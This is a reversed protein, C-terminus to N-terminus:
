KGRKNIVKQKAEDSLRDWDGSGEAPLWSPYSKDAPDKVPAADSPASADEGSVADVGLKKLRSEIANAQTRATWIETHQKSGKPYGGKPESGELRAIEANLVSLAKSMKDVADSEQQRARVYAAHEKELSRGTEPDEMIGKSVLYNVKAERQKAAAVGKEEPSLEPKAEKREPAFKQRYSEAAGPFRSAIFQDVDALKANPNSLAEGMATLAAGKLPPIVGAKEYASLKMRLENVNSTLRERTAVEEKRKAEAQSAEGREKESLRQAAAHAAAADGSLRDIQASLEDYRKGNAHRRQEMALDLAAKAMAAERAKAVSAPETSVPSTEAGPLATIPLSSGRGVPSTAPVSISPGGGKPTSGSEVSTDPRGPKGITPSSPYGQERNRKIWDRGRPTDMGGHAVIDNYEDNMPTPHDPRAPEATETTPVLLARASPSRAVIAQVGQTYSAYRKQADEMAVTDGAMRAEELDRAAKEQGTRMIAANNVDMSDRHFREQRDNDAAQEALRDARSQQFNANSQDRAAQEDKRQVRARIGGAIGQGISAIGQGRLRGAEVTLEAAARMASAMTDMNLNNQLRVVM